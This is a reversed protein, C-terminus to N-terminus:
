SDRPSPSTYLLCSTSDILEQHKDSDALDVIRTQVSVTDGARVKLDAAIVDLKEADRGVLVLSQGKDVLIRAVAQALASSAGLIVASPTATEASQIQSAEM